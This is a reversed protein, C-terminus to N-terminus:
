RPSADAASAAPVTRGSQGRRRPSFGPSVQSAGALTGRAPAETGAPSTGNRRAVDGYCPRTGPQAPQHQDPTRPRRLHLAVTMPGGDNRLSFQKGALDQM